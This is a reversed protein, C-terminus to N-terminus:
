GDSAKGMEAIQKVWADKRRTWARHRRWRSLYLALNGVAVVLCLWDIWGPKKTDMVYLLLCAFTLFVANPEPPRGELLSKGEEALMKM